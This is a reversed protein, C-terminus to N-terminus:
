RSTPKVFVQGEGLFRKLYAYASYYHSIAGPIADGVLSRVGLAFDSDLLFLAVCVALVVLNVDILLPLLEFNFIAILTFLLAHSRLALRALVPLCRAASVNFRVVLQILSRDVMCISAGICAFAQIAFLMAATYLDPWVGRLVVAHPLVVLGISYTCENM